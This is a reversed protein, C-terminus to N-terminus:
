EKIELNRITEANVLMSKVAIDRKTMERYASIEEAWSSTECATGAREQMQKQGDQHAKNYFAELQEPSVTFWDAPNWNDHFVEKALELIRPNMKVAERALAGM